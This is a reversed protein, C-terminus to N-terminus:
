WIDNLDDDNANPFLHTYRDTMTTNTHGLMDALQKQTKKGSAAVTSAFYHRLDHIRVDEFGADKVAVEWANRVVDVTLKTVKGDFPLSKKLEKRLHQPVPVRRPKKGKTKHSLVIAKGDFQEPQLTLAESRWRLGTASLLTLFFKVKDSEVHGILAELETKTLLVDRATGKESQMRVRQSYNASVWEMQFAVRLVRKVVAARRNCTLPSLGDRLLKSTYKNVASPVNELKATGIAATVQRGHSYLSPAITTDEVLRDYAQQFTLEGDTGVQNQFEAEWKNAVQQAKKKLREGTSRQKRNGHGDWYDAYFFPSRARQYVQAM